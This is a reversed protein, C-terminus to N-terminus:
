KIELKRIKDFADAPEVTSETLKTGEDMATNTNIGERGCKPLLAFCVYYLPHLVDSKLLVPISAIYRFFQSWLFFISRTKVSCSVLSICTISNTILQYTKGM